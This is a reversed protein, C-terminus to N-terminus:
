NHQPAQSCRDYSVTAAATVGRASVAGIGNIVLRKGQSRVVDLDTIHYQTIANPCPHQQCIVNLSFYILMTVVQASPEQEVTVLRKGLSRM